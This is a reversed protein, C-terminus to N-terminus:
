ILRELDVNPYASRIDYLLFFRNGRHRKANVLTSGGRVSGTAYPSPPCTDMLYMRIRRHVIRMAANPAYIIRQKRRRSVPNWDDFISRRFTPEHPLDRMLMFTSLHM